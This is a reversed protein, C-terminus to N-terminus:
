KAKAAFYAGQPSLQIPDSLSHPLCSLYIMESAFDFAISSCNHLNDKGIFMTPYSRHRPEKKMADVVIAFAEDQEDVRQRGPIIKGDPGESDAIYLTDLGLGGLVTPSGLTMKRIRFEPNRAHENSDAPIEPPDIYYGGLNVAIRRGVTGLAYSKDSSPNFFVSVTQEGIRALTGVGANWGKYVESFRILKFGFTTEGEKEPRLTVKLFDVGLTEPGIRTDEDFVPKPVTWYYAIKREFGLLQTKLSTSVKQQQVTKSYYDFSGSPAGSLDLREADAFSLQISNSAHLALTAKGERDKGLGFPIETETTLELSTEEKPLGSNHKPAAGSASGLLALLSCYFVTRM